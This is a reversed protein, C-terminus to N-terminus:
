LRPIAPQKEAGGALFMEHPLSSDSLAHIFMSFLESQSSIGLKSYINKRHIKVTGPAIGLIKAISDSSHGRLVHGVVECERTTLVSRGFNRFASDLYRELIEHEPNQGNDSFQLVLNEWHHEAAARIVPEVSRLLNMEKESYGQRNEGRMLSIVVRVEGPLAVIFGIEETLGTKIYYSRFYESQYFRDPALDRLRYLGPAVKNKCAQFLPDLLYPGEQYITVFVQRRKTGFNDFLDLPRENGRFAFMVSFDFPVLAQLGKIMAPPFDPTNLASIIGAVHHHWAAKDHPMDAMKERDTLDRRVQFALPNYKSLNEQPCIGLNAYKGM